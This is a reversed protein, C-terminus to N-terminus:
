VSVAGWFGAELRHGPHTRITPPITLHSIIRGDRCLFSLSHYCAFFLIWKWIQWGSNCGGGRKRMEFELQAEPWVVPHVRYFAGDTERERYYWRRLIGLHFIGSSRVIDFVQTDTLLDVARM